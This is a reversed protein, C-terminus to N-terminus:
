LPAELLEVLIAKDQDPHPRASFVIRHIETVPVDKESYYLALVFVSDRPLNPPNEELWRDVNDSAEDLECIDGQKVPQLNRGFRNKGETLSDFMLLNIPANSWSSCVSCPGSTDPFSFGTGPQRVAAQTDSTLVTRASSLICLFPTIGIRLEDELARDLGLNGFTIPQLLPAQCAPILLLVITLGTRLTRM